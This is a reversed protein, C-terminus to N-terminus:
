NVLLFESVIWNGYIIIGIKDLIMVDVDGCVEVVCGSKM